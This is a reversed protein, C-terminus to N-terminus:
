FPCFRDPDVSCGIRSVIADIQRDRIIQEDTQPPAENGDWATEFKSNSLSAKVEQNEQRWRGLALHM